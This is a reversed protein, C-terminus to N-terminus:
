VTITEPPPAWALHSKYVFSDFLAKKQKETLAVLSPAAQNNEGKQLLQAISLDPEVQYLHSFKDAQGSFYEQATKRDPWTYIRGKDNVFEFLGCELQSGFAYVM